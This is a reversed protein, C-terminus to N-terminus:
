NLLVVWGESFTKTSQQSYIKWGLIVLLKYARKLSQTKYTNTPTHQFKSPEKLWGKVIDKTSMYRKIAYFYSDTLTEPKPFHYM